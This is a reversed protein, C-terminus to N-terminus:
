AASTESARKASEDLLRRAIALLEPIPFPKRLVANAGTSLATRLPSYGGAVEVGGSIAIVPTRSYKRHELPLGRRIHFILNLGGDPIYKGGKSVFMDTIVLDIDFENFRKIASAGSNATVVTHGDVAFIREIEMAIQYDDEMLLIRAM